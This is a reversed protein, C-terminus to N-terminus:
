LLRIRILVPRSRLGKAPAASIDITLSFTLLKPTINRENKAGRSHALGHRLRGFLVSGRFRVLRASLAARAQHAPNPM